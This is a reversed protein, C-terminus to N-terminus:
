GRPGADPLTNHRPHPAHPNTSHRAANRQIITVEIALQVLLDQVFDPLKGQRTASIIPIYKECWENVLDDPTAFCFPRNSSRSSGGPLRSRSTFVPSGFKPTEPFLYWWRRGGDDKKQTPKLRPLLNFLMKCAFAGDLENKLHLDTPDFMTHATQATTAVTTIGTSTMSSSLSTISQIISSTCGIFPAAVPLKRIM